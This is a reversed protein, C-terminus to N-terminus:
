ETAILMSPLCTAVFSKETFYREASLLLCLRPAIRAKKKNGPLFEEGACVGCTM